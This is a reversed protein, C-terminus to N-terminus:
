PCCLQWRTDNFTSGTMGAIQCYPGADPGLHPEGPGCTMLKMGAPCPSCAASCSGFVCSSTPCLYHGSATDLICGTPAAGTPCTFTTFDAASDLQNCTAPVNPFTSCLDAAPCSVTPAGGSGADSQPLEDSGCGFLAVAALFTYAGKV